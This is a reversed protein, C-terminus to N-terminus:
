SHFANSRNSTVPNSVRSNKEKLNRTVQWNAKIYAPLFFLVFFVGVEHSHGFIFCERVGAYLECGCGWKFFFFFLLLSFKRQFWSRWFCSAPHSEAVLVWVLLLYNERILIRLEPNWKVQYKRFKSRTNSSRACINRWGKWFQENWM